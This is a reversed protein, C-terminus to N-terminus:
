NQVILPLFVLSVVFWLVVVCRAVGAVVVAVVVVMTVIDCLSLALWL